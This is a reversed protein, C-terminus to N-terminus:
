TGACASPVPIGGDTLVALLKQGTKAILRGKGNSSSPLMM